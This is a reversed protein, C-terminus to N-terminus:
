LNNKELFSKFISTMKDPIVAYMMHNEDLIHIEANCHEAYDKAAQQWSLTKVVSKMNSVIFCSPCKL